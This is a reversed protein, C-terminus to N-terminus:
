IVLKFNDVQLTLRKRLSFSNNECIPTNTLMPSSRWSPVFRMNIMKIELTVSVESGSYKYDFEVSRSKAEVESNYM